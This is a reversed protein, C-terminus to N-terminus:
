GNAQIDAIDADLLAKLALFETQLKAKEAKAFTEAEDTDGYNNITIIVDAYQTPLDGLIAAQESLQSICRARQVRATAIKGAIDDLAAKVESYEAM